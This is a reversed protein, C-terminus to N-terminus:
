HSVVVKGTVENQGDSVKIIYTGNPVRSVDITKKGNNDNYAQVLIRQGSAVSILEITRIGRAPKATSMKAIRATSENGDSEQEGELEITLSNVAPNPYAVMSIGFATVTVSRTKTITRGSMYRLTATLTGTGTAGTVKRLRITKDNTTIHQITAIATNSFSWTITWNNGGAAYPDPFDFTYDKYMTGAGSVPKISAMRDCLAAISKYMHIRGYGYITDYGPAGMDVLNSTILTRTESETMTTDISRLIAVLGSVQPAAASTGNFNYTYDGSDDGAAGAQDCSFMGTYDSIAVMSLGVGSNAYILRFYSPSIASVSLVNPHNAPFPLTNIGDNGASVVINMGKGYAGKIRASDIASRIAAFEGTFNETRYKFSCNVVPAGTYRTYVWADALDAVTPVGYFVNVSIIPAGSAVGAAGENNNRIAAAIGSVAHGHWDATSSTYGFHLAPGGPTYGGAYNLDPHLPNVGDDMIVIPRLTVLDRWLWTSDMNGLVTMYPTQFPYYYTDNPLPLARRFMRASLLDTPKGSPKIVARELIELPDKTPTKVDTHQVYNPIYFNPHAFEAVEADYIRNSIDFVSDKDVKLRIMVQEGAPVPLDGLDTNRLGTKVVKAKGTLDLSALVETLKLGPKLKLLIEGTPIVPTTGAWLGHYVFAVSTDSELEKIQGKRDVGSKFKLVGENEVAGFSRRANLFRKSGDDNKFKVVITATDAWLYMKRGNADHYYQQANISGSFLLFACLLKLIPKM